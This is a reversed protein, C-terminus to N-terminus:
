IGLSVCREALGPTPGDTIIPTAFLRAPELISFPQDLIIWQGPTMSILGSTTQCLTPYDINSIDTCISVPARVVSPPPPAFTLTSKPRSMSPIGLFTPLSVSQGGWTAPQKDAKLSFKPKVLIYGETSSSPLVAPRTTSSGRGRGRTPSGRGRGPSQRPSTINSHEIAKQNLPTRFSDHFLM